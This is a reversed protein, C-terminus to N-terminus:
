PADPQVHFLATPPVAEEPFGGVQQWRFSMSATSVAEFYEIRLAHARDNLEVEAAGRTLFQGRWLDIILRDDLWVRVGDDSATILRYRGPRPAKLWGTWRISFHEAPMSLDPTGEGWLFNVQPDIRTTRKNTLPPEGVFLEARLGNV